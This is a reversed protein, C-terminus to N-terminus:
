FLYGQNMTIITLNPSVATQSWAKGKRGKLLQIPITVFFYGVDLDDAACTATNSSSLVGYKSSHVKKNEHKRRQVPPM